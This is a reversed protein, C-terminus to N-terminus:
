LETEYHGSKFGIVLKKGTDLIPRKILTPLDLMLQIAKQQTLNAQQENSLQRWSTSSRNLLTEWGLIDAFRKLLEPTLGDVRYDHFQYAIGNQELWRRAKKCTDCNKIGYLTTM